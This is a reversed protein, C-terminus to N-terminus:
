RRKFDVAVQINRSSNQPASVRQCLCFVSAIISVGLVVKCYALKNACIKNKIDLFLCDTLGGISLIM